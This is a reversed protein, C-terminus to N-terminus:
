RNGGPVTQLGEEFVALVANWHILLIDRQKLPLGGYRVEEYRSVFSRLPRGASTASFRDALERPTLTYPEGPGPLPTAREILSRYLLVAAMSWEGADFLDRYRILTDVPSRLAPPARAPGPMTRSFTAAEATMVQERRRLYWVSGLFALLIFGGGVSVALLFPVSPAIAVAQIGSESPNLPFAPDDFVAQLTHNGRTLNVSGFYFGDQGTEVTLAEFDDVLIRVPANALPIPGAYLEGYCFVEAWRDGPWTELTLVTDTPIVTLPVINSYLTGTTAFIVHEGSRIRGIPLLTSFIGNADPELTKWDRSDLVLTVEPLRRYTYGGAVLLADGYRGSDPVVSLSLSSINLEPRNLEREEQEKRDEEIIEGLMSVAEEYRTTNLGLDDSIELIDPERDRFQTATKQLASHVAEGEYSITYLLAPNEESRYRVELRNIEDFGASQNIMRELADMNRRNERSFDGLASESLDLNVVVDNFYESKERYEEFEREAEEFDRIKINFVIPQPTDLLEQMLAQIDESRESSYEQLTAPNSHYPTSSENYISYLEPQLVSPALLVLFVASLIILVLLSLRKM